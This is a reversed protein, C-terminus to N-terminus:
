PLKYNLELLKHYNTLYKLLLYSIQTSNHSSLNETLNLDLFDINEYFGRYKDFLQILKIVINVKATLKVHRLKLLM